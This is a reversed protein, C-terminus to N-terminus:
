NSCGDMGPGCRGSSNRPAGFNQTWLTNANYREDSAMGAFFGVGIETYQANMINSCHGPSSMWGMVVESPSQQGKAINEGMTVGVYGAAAMRAFPDLGAPNDHAFYNQQGMDMSHLRSSCRLMANMVLPPAPQFPGYEGCTAGQARQENTLELVEEEFAIWQPNWTAAPACHESAPM